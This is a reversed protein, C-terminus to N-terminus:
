QGDDWPICRWYNETAGTLDIQCTTRPADCYACAIGYMNNIGCEDPQCTPDALCAGDTTCEGYDCDGCSGGCRDDGCSRAACDRVCGTSDVDIAATGCDVGGWGADCVCSGWECHGNAGCSVHCELVVTMNNNTYDLEPIIGDPNITITLSYTDDSPLGTVDLWSCENGNVYSSCLSGVSMGQLSDSFVAQPIIGGVSDWWRHKTYVDRVVHMTSNRLELRGWRDFLIRGMCDQMYYEASPAGIFLSATGLNLADMRVSLIKRKSATPIFTSGVRCDCDPFDVYRITPWEYIRETRDYPNIKSTSFVRLDVGVPPSIACAVGAGGCVCTNDMNCSPHYM